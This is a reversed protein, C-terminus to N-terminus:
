PQRSGRLTQEREAAERLAAHLSQVQEEYTNLQRIATAMADDALHTAADEALAARQDDTLGDSWELAEEIADAARAAATGRTAPDVMAVASSEVLAPWHPGRVVDLMAPLTGLDGSLVGPVDVQPRVTAEGRRGAPHEWQGISIGPVGALVGEYLVNSGNSLVVDAAGIMTMIDADDPAVKVGPATRAQRSARQLEAYAEALREEWPSGPPPPSSQPYKVVLDFADLDVHAVADILQRRDSWSCALLVVPKSGIGLDDRLARVAQTYADPHSHVHDAKTWGISRMGFAPGRTGAAQAREWKGLWSPGPLLGVDFVHWSEAAFYGADLVGAQGMDHVSLVSLTSTPKRWRGSAFDFFRNTHCAYLGIEAPEDLDDSTRVRAGRRALEAGIPALVALEHSDDSFLVADRGQLGRRQRRVGPLRLRRARQEAM